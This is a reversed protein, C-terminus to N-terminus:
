KGKLRFISLNSSIILFLLLSIWEWRENIALWPTLGSYPQVIGHIAMMKDIPAQLQVKGKSDIISTLGSNNVFLVPRGTELARFQAMALHQAAATSHGFWSDDSLTILLAASRAQQRILHPFIIEYCLNAAVPINQLYFPSQHVAGASFSSFPIALKNNLWDLWTPTYEGFPVLHHKAYYAFAPSIAIISNYDAANIHQLLGLLFVPHYNKTIAQLQELLFFAQDEMIPLAAEPWVILQSNQWFPQSLQWYREFSHDIGNIQWKDEQSINGQVLTVQFINKLPHTWSVHTLYAGVLWLASTVVTIVLAMKTRRTLIAVLAASTFATLWTVGYVGLIPAWGALFTTLQTYGLLDWPFGSFLFTRGYAQLTWLTPLGILLHRWSHPDYYRRYIYLPIAFFLSLGMILVLILPISLFLSLNGYYHVSTNIWYINSTFFACGFMFAKKFAARPSVFHVEFFLIGLAFPALWGQSYPAFSFNLLLGGFPSIIWKVQSLWKAFLM